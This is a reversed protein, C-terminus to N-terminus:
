KDRAVFIFEAIFIDNTNIFMEETDNLGTISGTLETINCPNMSCIYKLEKGKHTKRSTDATPTTIYENPILITNYLNQDNSNSDLKFQDIKLVYASKNPVNNFGPYSSGKYATTFNDLYIDSLKDIKFPEHLQVNITKKDSAAATWKLILIKKNNRNFNYQSNEYMSLEKKNNLEDKYKLLQKETSLLKKKLSKIENQIENQIEDSLIIKSEEKQNVIKDLDPYYYKYIGSLLLLLIFGIIQYKYEIIKNKFEDIM